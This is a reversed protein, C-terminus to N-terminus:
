PFVLGLHAAARLICRVRGKMISVTLNERVSRMGDKLKTVRGTTDIVLSRKAMVDLARM